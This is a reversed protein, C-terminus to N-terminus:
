LFRDLFTACRQSFAPTWEHGCDMFYTEVEIALEDLRKLDAELKEATYWEDERCQGILVVPQKRDVPVGVEPPVDGALALIGVGTEGSLAARYAMAVGQSFGTYLVTDSVGEETQLRRVISNVYAINNQIAEDRLLRTMWSSVVQDDKFRYFQHLGEISCLAWRDSAPIEQLRQMQVAATEAYGHFGVLLPANPQSGPRFLYRGHTFAGIVHQSVESSM